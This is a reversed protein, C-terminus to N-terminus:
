VQTFSAGPQSLEVSDIVHLVAASHQDGRALDILRNVAVRSPFITPQDLIRREPYFNSKPRRGRVSKPQAAAALARGGRHHWSIISTKLLELRM